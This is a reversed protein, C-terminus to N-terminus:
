VIEKLKDLFLQKTISAQKNTLKSEDFARAYGQRSGGRAGFLYAGPEKIYQPAIVGAGGEEEGAKAQVGSAAHTLPKQKESYPSAGAPNIYYLSQGAADPKGAEWGM